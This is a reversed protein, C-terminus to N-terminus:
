VCSNIRSSMQVISDIEPLCCDTDIWSRTGSTVDSCLIRLNERHCCFNSALVFLLRMGPECFHSRKLTPVHM